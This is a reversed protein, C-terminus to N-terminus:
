RWQILVDANATGAPGLVSVPEWFRRRTIQDPILSRNVSVRDRLANLLPKGSPRRPPRILGLHDLELRASRAPALNPDIELAKRYFASAEGYAGRDSSQIGRVLFMLAKIDSTFPKRLEEKQAETLEIHLLRIIEFLIEKELRLMASLPGSSSPNGLASGQPVNLLNSDIAINKQPADNLDGGVLYRAGLLRGVRPVSEKTVLGSGGLKLEQILAQLRAREVVQVGQVKALDTILMIAMGMQLFDLEAQGTQNHFYLVAVANDAPKLTLAAEQNVAQQAWQHLEGSIVQGANASPIVSLLMVIVSLAVAFPFVPTSPTRM